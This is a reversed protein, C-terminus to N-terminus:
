IGWQAKVTPRGRRTMSADVVDDHILTAMHILELSIAVPLLKDLSYGYFKGALLTFAPRLRKGGAALLHVSSENLIPFDTTVFKLLGIEM